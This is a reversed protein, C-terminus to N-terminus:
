KKADKKDKLDKLEQMSEKQIAAMKEQLPKLFEPMERMVNPANNAAAAGGCILTWVLATALLKNM